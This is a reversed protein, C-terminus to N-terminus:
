DATEARSGGQTMEIAAAQFRVYEGRPQAGAHPLRATSSQEERNLFARVESVHTALRNLEEEVDARLWLAHGRAPDPRRNGRTDLDRDWRSAPLLAKELREALKRELAALLEPARARVQEVIPGIGDCRQLIATALASGERGRSAQLVNLAEELAAIAEARLKDADM